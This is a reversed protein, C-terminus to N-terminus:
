GVNLSATISAAAAAYPSAIFMQNGDHHLPSQRALYLTDLRGSVWFFSVTVVTFPLRCFVLPMM